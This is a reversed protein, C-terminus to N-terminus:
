LIGHRTRLEPPTRLDPPRKTGPVSPTQPDNAAPWDRYGTEQPSGGQPLRREGAHGHPGSGEGSARIGCGTLARM